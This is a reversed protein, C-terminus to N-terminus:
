LKVLSLLCLIVAVSMVELQQAAGRPQVMRNLAFSDLSWSQTSSPERWSSLLEPQLSGPWPSESSGRMLEGSASSLVQRGGPQQAAHNACLPSHLLNLLAARTLTDVSGGGNINGTKALFSLM